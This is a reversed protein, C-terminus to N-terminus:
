HDTDNDIIPENDDGMVNIGDGDQTMTTTTMKQTDVYDYQCWEYLWIGNSAFLLALAIYIIITLRKITREMRSMDGEHVVYPVSVQQKEM